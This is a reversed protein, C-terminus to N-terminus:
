RNIWALVVGMLLIRITELVMAKLALALPIPAVAHYVLYFPIATLFAVALGFRLGQMLWPKDEKGQVYIWAFAAGIFVNGVLLYVLNGQVDAAPRMLNSLQAYDAKLLVDHILFGLVLAMIIMVTASVICKNM